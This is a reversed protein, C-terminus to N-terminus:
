WKFLPVIIVRRQWILSRSEILPALHLPLACFPCAAVFHPVAYLRKCVATNIADDRKKQGMVVSCFRTGIRLNQFQTAVRVFGIWTNNLEYSKLSYLCTATWKSLTVTSLFPSHKTADGFISSTPSSFLLATTSKKEYQQMLTAREKISDVIKEREREEKNKQEAPSRRSSTLRCCCLLSYM